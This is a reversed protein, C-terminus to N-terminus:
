SRNRMHPFLIVDRINDKNTFLMVLRDIGIGLGGAPPMGYELAELFDKDMENAEENGQDKEKLQKLFNEKQIIPNNLEGYANGFEVGGIFIEFRQSFRPDKPDPKALPSVESPHGYLITPEILKDECFEEFVKNVVHGFTKEHKELHVGKSEAIKVAEKDSMKKWFDIGTAEKIADAMHLRKFGKSFDFTNGRWEILPTKNINTAVAKFIGESIDMMGELDTYAEYLELMTFEPNHRNSIGENRFNRNMEYVKELGGVLLRKLYLEPAIRLYLPMDLANHHTVFPRASAGGLIPHLIPTEVEIFGLDDLYKKIERIIKPRLLAVNKSNEDVILDVYRRRYKEEIDTLGHYKEPLPRLAKTLHTYEFCKISLEGTKTKMVKGKVGVVDGLDALKFVEYQKEGVTDKRIYIQIQGDRDQIHFFAVKGMDRLTMIRGAVTVIIEKEELEEHTLNQYKDLVEKSTSDKAFRQGFPDVGLERYKALKERRFFEQEHLKEEM